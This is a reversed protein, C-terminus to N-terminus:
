DGLDALMGLLVDLGARVMVQDRVKRLPGDHGVARRRAEAARAKAALTGAMIGRLTDALADGLLAGSGRGALSASLQRLACSRLVVAKATDAICRAERAERLEAARAQAGPVAEHAVDSAEAGTVAGLAEDLLAEAVADVACDRTAERLAEDLLVTGEDGAKRSELLDAVRERIVERVADRVFPAIAEDVVVDAAANAPSSEPKEHQRLFDDLVEGVAERALSRAVVKVAEDEMVDYRSLALPRPTLSNTTPPLYSPHLLTPTTHPARTAPARPRLVLLLLLLLPATVYARQMDADYGPPPAFEFANRVVVDVLINPM